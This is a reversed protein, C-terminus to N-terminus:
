HSFWFDILISFYRMIDLSSYPNLLKLMGKKNEKEKEELTCKEGRIQKKKQSSILFILSRNLSDM